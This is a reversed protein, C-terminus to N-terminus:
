LYLDVIEKIEKHDYGDSQKIEALFARSEDTYLDGIAKLAMYRENKKMSRYAEKLFDLKDTAGLVGLSSLSATRVRSDTHKTLEVLPEIAAPNNTFGLEYVTLYTYKEPQGNASEVLAAVQEDTASLGYIYRNIKSAIESIMLRVPINYCPETVESFAWVPVKGNKFYFTILRGGEETTLEGRFTTFTYYPSYGSARHNRIKFHEIDLTVVGDDSASVHEAPVGRAVLDEAVERGIFDAPDELNVLVTKLTGGSFEAKAEESRQDRVDLKLGIPPKDAYQVGSPDPLKVVFTKACGTGLGLVLLVLLLRPTRLSASRARGDLV